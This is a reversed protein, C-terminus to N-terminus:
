ENYNKKIKNLENSSIQEAAPIKYTNLVCYRCQEKYKNIHIFFQKINRRLRYKKFPLISERIKRVNVEDYKKFKLLKYVEKISQVKGCALIKGNVLTTCDKNDCNNYIKQVIEDDKEYRENLWGSYFWTNNKYMFEYLRYPINNKSLKECFNERLKETCKYNSIRVKIKSNRKLADIIEQQLNVTGNTAIDINKINNLKSVFDLIKVIDPHTFPEGGQIQLKKVKSNQTIFELDKLILDSDFSIQKMYPILNCCYRCKLTCKTGVWFVLFNIQQKPFLKKKGRLIDIINQVIKVQM